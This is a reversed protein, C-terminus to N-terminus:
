RGFARAIRMKRQREEEARKEAEMEEVQRRCRAEFDADWFSGPKATAQLYGVVGVVLVFLLLTCPLPGFTDWLVGLGGAAVCLVFGGVSAFPIGAGAFVLLPLGGVAILILPLLLEM